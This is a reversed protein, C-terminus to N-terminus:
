EKTLDNKDLSWTKGYNMFGAFKYLEKTEDFKLGIIEGCNIFVNTPYYHTIRGDNHKLFFGQKISKFLTTLDIGLEEEIDELKSLKELAKRTPVYNPMGTYVGNDTHYTLRELKWSM